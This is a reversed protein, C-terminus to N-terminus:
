HDHTYKVGGQAQWPDCHDTDIAASMWCPRFFGGTKETGDPDMQQVQITGINVRANAGQPQMGLVASAREDLMKAVEDQSKGNFEMDSIAQSMKPINEEVRTFWIEESTEKGSTAKM